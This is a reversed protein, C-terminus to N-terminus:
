GVRLGGKDQERTIAEGKGNVTGDEPERLISAVPYDGTAQTPPGPPRPQRAFGLLQRQDLAHGPFVTVPERVPSRKIDGAATSVSGGRGDGFIRGQGGSRFRQYDQESCPRTDLRRNWDGVLGILDHVIKLLRQGSWRRGV